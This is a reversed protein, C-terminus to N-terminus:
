QRPGADLLALNQEALDGTASNEGLAAARQWDARAGPLDGNRERIIGRELLAEPNDPDNAIAATIDTMAAPLNNLQRWSTARLVLADSRKPDEELVLSLDEEAERARQVALAAIAHIVRVEADEPSLALGQSAASYAAKSDGAMTWAQAAQGFVEARSPAPAQSRTALDTLLQAGAAPDGLEIQALAHCHAAAEGGDHWSTALADAGQPDEALMDMCREYEEGEAIHPSIPPVPLPAEEAPPEAPPPPQPTQARLPFAVAFLTAAAIARLSM